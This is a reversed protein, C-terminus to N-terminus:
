QHLTNVIAKQDDTLDARFIFEFPDVDVMLCQSNYFEAKHFDSTFEGERLYRNIRNFKTEPDEGEKGIPPIFFSVSERDNKNGGFGTGHGAM